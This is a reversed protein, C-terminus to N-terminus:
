DLLQLEAFSSPNFAAQAKAVQNGGVFYAINNAKDIASAGALNNGSRTYFQTGLSTGGTSVDEVAEVVLSGGSSDLAVTFVDDDEDFDAGDRFWSASFFTYGADNTFSGIGGTYRAMTGGNDGVYLTSFDSSFNISEVSDGDEGTASVDLTQSLNFTDSGASDQEYILVNTPSSNDSIAIVCTGASYDGEVELARSAGFANSIVVPSSAADTTMEDGVRKVSGGFGLTFIQGDDSTRVKYPDVTGDGTDVNVIVGNTGASTVLTLDVASLVYIENDDESGVIINGTAENFAVGRFDGASGLTTADTEVDASAPLATWTDDQASALTPAALAAAAMMALFKKM